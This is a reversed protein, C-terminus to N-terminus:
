ALFWFDVKEIEFHRLKLHQASNSQHMLVFLGRLTLSSSPSLHGLLCPAMLLPAPPDFKTAVKRREM